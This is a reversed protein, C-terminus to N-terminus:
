LNITDYTDLPKIELPYYKPDFAEEALTIIVKGNQPSYINKYINNDLRGRIGSVITFKNPDLINRNIDKRVSIGPKTIGTIVESKYDGSSVIYGSGGSGGTNKVSLNLNVLGGLWGGGGGGNNGNRSANRGIVTDEEDRQQLTSESNHAGTGMWGGGNGGMSQTKNDTGGKGGGGGAILLAKEKLVPINDDDWMEKGYYNTDIFLGSLGGGSGGLLHGKGGGGHTNINNLGGGQGIVVTYNIDKKFKVLAKTYGGIGGINENDDTGYTGGDSGYLEVWAVFDEGPTIVFSGYGLNKENTTFSTDANGGGYFFVCDEINEVTDVKENGNFDTIKYQM